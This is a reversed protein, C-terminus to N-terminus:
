ADDDDAAPVRHSTTAAKVTPCPYPKKCHVCSIPRGHRAEHLKIIQDFAHAYDLVSNRWFDRDRRITEIDEVEAPADAM